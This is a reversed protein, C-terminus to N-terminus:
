GRSRKGRRPPPDGAKELGAATLRFAAAGVLKTIKDGLRAAPPRHRTLLDGPRDRLDTRNKKMGV